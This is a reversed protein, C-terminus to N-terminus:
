ESVRTLRPFEREPRTIVSERQELCTICRGNLLGWQTFTLRAQLASLKVDSVEELFDEILKGLCLILIIVSKKAVLVPGIFM